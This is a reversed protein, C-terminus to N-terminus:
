WKEDNWVKKAAKSKTDKNALLIAEIDDAKSLASQREGDAIHQKLEKLNGMITAYGQEHIHKMTIGGQQMGNFIRGM